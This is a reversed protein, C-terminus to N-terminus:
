EARYDVEMSKVEKIHFEAELIYNFTLATVKCVLSFDFIQLVELGQVLGIFDVKQERYIDKEFSIRVRFGTETDSVKKLCLVEEMLGLDRHIAVM